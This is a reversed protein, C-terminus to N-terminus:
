AMATVTQWHREALGNQWQRFNENLFDRAEVGILKKDFDFIIRKPQIGIDGYFQKFSRIIDLNLNM